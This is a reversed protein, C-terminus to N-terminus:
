QFVFKVISVEFEGIELGHYLATLLSDFSQIVDDLVEVNRDGVHGEVVM